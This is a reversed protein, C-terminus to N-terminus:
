QGAPAAPAAPAAQPVPNEPERAAEVPEFTCSAILASVAASKKTFDNQAVQYDNIAKKIDIVMQEYVKVAQYPSLGNSDLMYQGANAAGSVGGWAAIASKAAAAQAALGPVIVSGAIIGVSAIGVSVSRKGALDERKKAMVDRCYEIAKDYSDTVGKRNDQEIQDIKGAVAAQDDPPRVLVNNQDGEKMFAPKQDSSLQPSPYYSNKPIPTACGFCFIASTSAVLALKMIVVEMRNFAGVESTPVKKWFLGLAYRYNM